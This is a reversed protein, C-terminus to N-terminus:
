LAPKNDSDRIATVSISLTFVVFAFNLENESPGDMILVHRTNKNVEKTIAHGYSSLIVPNELIALIPKFDKDEDSSRAETLVLLKIDTTLSKVIVQSKLEFKGHLMNGMFIGLSNGIAKFKDLTGLDTRYKEVLNVVQSNCTNIPLSEQSAVNEIFKASSSAFDVTAM